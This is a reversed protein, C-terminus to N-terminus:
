ALLKDVKAGIEKEIQGKLLKAAFGLDLELSVTSAGMTVKGQKVQGGSLHCVDGDWRANIQFKTQMETALTELRRRLEDPSLTHNRSMNIDAM